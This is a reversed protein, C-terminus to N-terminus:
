NNKPAFIKYAIFILAVAVIIKFLKDNFLKNMHTENNLKEVMVALQNEYYKDKQEATENIITKEDNGTVKFHSQCGCATHKKEDSEIEEVIIDTSEFLEKDPHIDRIGRLLMEQSRPSGQRMIQIMCKYAEVSNKPSMPTLSHILLIAEQPNKECVYRYINTQHPSSDNKQSPFM